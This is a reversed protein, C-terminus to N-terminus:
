IQTGDVYVWRANKRKTLFRPLVRWNEKQKEKNKRREAKEGPKEKKSKEVIQRPTRPAERKCSGKIISDDTHFLVDKNKSKVVEREKKRKSQKHIHTRTAFTSPSPLFICNSLPLLLLLLIFRSRSSLCAPERQEDILFCLFTESSKEVEQCRVPPNFYHIFFENRSKHPRSTDSETKRKMTHM